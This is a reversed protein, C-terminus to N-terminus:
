VHAWTKRQLLSRLTAPSIGYERALQAKPTADVAYRKRIELAASETLKAQSHRSGKASRGKRVMDASNDAKTGLFLHAPNVCAPADCEHLVCQGAPIAGYTFFWAARSALVGTVQLHFLGYGHENLGATWLWCGTGDGKDVRSWFRQEPPGARFSTACPKSCCPNDSKVGSQNRTFRKHCTPCTYTGYTARHHPV